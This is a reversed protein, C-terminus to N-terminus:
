FCLAWYKFFCGGGVVWTRDPKGFAGCPSKYKQGAISRAWWQFGFLCMWPWLSCAAQELCVTQGQCDKRVTWQLPFLNAAARTVVKIVKLMRIDHQDRQKWVRAKYGYKWTICNKKKIKILIVAHSITMAQQVTQRKFLPPPSWPSQLFSYNKNENAQNTFPAQNETALMNHTNMICADWKWKPWSFTLNREFMAANTMDGYGLAEMFGTEGNHPIDTTPKLKCM